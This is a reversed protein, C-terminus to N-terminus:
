AGEGDHRLRVRVSSGVELHEDRRVQKKIPLVFSAAAKDPFLSTSWTTAGITVRVPIAGFGARDGVAEDIQDAIHAPLTVFHWGAEGPYLWLRGTFEYDIPGM